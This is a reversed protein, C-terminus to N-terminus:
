DNEWSEVSISDIILNDGIRARCSLDLEDGDISDPDVDMGTVTIRVTYVATVSREYPDFDCADLFEDLGSRCISGDEMRSVAYERVGDLRQQLRRADQEAQRVTEYQDDLREQMTTLAQEAAALNVTATQKEGHVTDLIQARERNQQQSSELQDALYKIMRQDDTQVEGEALSTM